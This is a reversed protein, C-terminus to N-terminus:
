APSSGDWFEKWFRLHTWLVFRFRGRGGHMSGGEGRVFVGRRGGCIAAERAGMLTAASLAERLLGPRRERIAENAVQRYFDHFVSDNHVAATLQVPTSFMSAPM